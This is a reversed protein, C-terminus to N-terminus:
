MDVFTKGPFKSTKISDYLDAITPFTDSDYYVFQEDLPTTASVTNYHKYRGSIRYTLVQPTNSGGMGGYNPQGLKTITVSGKLTVHTGTQNKVEYGAFNYAETITFGM